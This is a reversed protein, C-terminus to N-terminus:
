WQVKFGPWQSGDVADFVDRAWEADPMASHAKGKEPPKVGIMNSIDYSNWPLPVEHGRAVLVGAALELANIVRYHWPLEDPDGFLKRLMMADFATNSGVLIAGRLTNFLHEVIELRDVPEVEGMSEHIVAADYGDPVVFREHFRSIRLAEDDATTLDPRIQVLLKSDEMGRMREILAVEWIGHKSPNLGTTEVDGFALHWHTNM